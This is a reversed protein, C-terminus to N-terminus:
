DNMVSHALVFERAGQIVPEIESRRGEWPPYWTEVSGDPRILCVATNNRDGDAASHILYTRTLKRFLAGNIYFRGLGPVDMEWIPPTNPPPPKPVRHRVTM